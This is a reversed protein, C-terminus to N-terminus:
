AKRGLWRRRAHRREYGRLASPPPTPKSLQRWGFAGTMRQGHQPPSLGQRKHARHINTHLFWWLGLTACVVLFAIELTPVM